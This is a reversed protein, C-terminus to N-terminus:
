LVEQNELDLTVIKGEKFTKKLDIIRQNSSGRFWLDLDKLKEIYKGDVLVDINHLIVSTFTDDRQLLEELTYGTYIWINLKPFDRRLRYMFDYVCSLNKPHLPDGGSITIGDLVNATKKIKEMISDIEEYYNKGYNFDHTEPNQCGPCNHTCGSVYLTSRLGLGDVITEEIFGSINM